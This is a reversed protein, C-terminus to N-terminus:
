NCQKLENAVITVKISVKHFLGMLQSKKDIKWDYQCFREKLLGEPAWLEFCRLQKNLVYFGVYFFM